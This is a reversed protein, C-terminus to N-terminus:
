VTVTVTNVTVTINATTSCPTAGTSQSVTLTYATTTLPNFVWGTTANGSVGTSPSWVFRDYIGAGSAVTVPATTQESCITAPNGSLTFAPPTTVTAVVAARQSSCGSSVNLNYFYMNTAADTGYWYGSTVTFVGGLTSYPYTTTSYGLAGITGSVATVILSYSGAAPVVLNM